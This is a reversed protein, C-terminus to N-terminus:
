PVAAARRPWARQGSGRGHLSSIRGGADGGSAAVAKRDFETFVNRQIAQTIIYDCGQLREVHSVELVPIRELSREVVAKFVSSIGM